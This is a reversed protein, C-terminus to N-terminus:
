VKNNKSIYKHLQPFVDAHLYDIYEIAENKVRNLFIFKSRKKSNVEKKAKTRFDIPNTSIDQVTKNFTRSNNIISSTNITIYNVNDIQKMISMETNLYENGFFHLFEWELDGSRVNSLVFIINAESHMNKINHYTELANQNDQEGASLPIFWIVNEYEKIKKMESLFITATKNGGVDILIDKNDFFIEDIQTIKSTPLITSELIESKSFVVSDNNEDDIEILTVRENNLVFLYPALVQSMLTSKGTGGKTNIGIYIM